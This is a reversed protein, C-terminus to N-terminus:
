LMVARMAVLQVDSDDVQGDGNQDWRVDHDPRSLSRALVFADLIDVTGSGDIDAGFGGADAIDATVSLGAVVPSASIDASSKRAMSRNTEMDPSRPLLTVLLMAAAVTGVSLVAWRLRHRGAPRAVTVTSLHRGASNLVAADIDPPVSIAPPQGARIAAVLEQPLEDEPLDPPPFQNM